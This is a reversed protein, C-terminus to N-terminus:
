MAEGFCRAFLIRRLTPLVWSSSLPMGLVHSKEPPGAQVRVLSRKRILSLLAQQPHKNNNLFAQLDRSKRRHDNQM